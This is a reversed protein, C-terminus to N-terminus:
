LVWMQLSCLLIIGASILFYTVQSEKKLFYSMQIQWFKEVKGIYVKDYFSFKCGSDSVVFPWLSKLYHDVYMIFTEVGSAM